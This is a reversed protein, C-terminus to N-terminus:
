RQMGARLWRRALFLSAPSLLAIAGYLSWMAGSRQAGHAPVFRELVWGSYLGTTAKAVFWPLGAIGMYQTVRGHPALESTYEYFRSSWLAEGVSFLVLYAILMITRPGGALLFTSAASVFSGVIMVALVHFRKTLATLTPVGFLIVLPNMSEVLWEMRDAIAQPYSRLVYEPMTLWQHAFLTRVPLLAFVFFLFRADRYPARGEATARGTPEDGRVLNAEVARTMSLAFAFLTAATVITCVVNVANYGSLATTRAAHMRDFTTRVHASIPGIIMAGFNLGAYLLAFGMPSTEASTYRKVGAYSVPQVIGEGLAVVLLSPALLTVGGVFPSAVYLARGISGLALALVISKRIGLRTEAKGVFLMVISLAGTFLSVWTSAIAPAIFLDQGLFAKMLPLIGYYATADFTYAFIILWLARPAHRLARFAEVLEKV